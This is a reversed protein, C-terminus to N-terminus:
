GLATRLRVLLAEGDPVGLGTCPDWGPGADYAGNSGSTVDRFGAAVEGASLGAYILPQLLGPRQGLAEALRCTLASWLPSVASTGGFVADTGDVRVQYGTSPDADASVDPVGRGHRGTDADGPVRVGDQWDPVAFVASVGGGTGGQGTGHFWVTESSVEGTDPDARLTTGGCALAHPSSAPFDVHAQGDPANDTSGDDGAAACVTVGLAAADALAEDMATRAQATWEDENQGWSISVATPTPDAHVATSLADLFGRDTNPAFYVVLDAGPALAGAVEIDLLVEGDAGNPDGEPANAAGDVGVATVTPPDALGITTWYADLDAQTYGGGLELIALRQGRGDTGSPFRYVRGLELPTFTTDVAAAPRFLARAQPRDDLGLVATVVGALPAPVALDGSRQRHPVLRDAVPDPSEVRSLSVGFVRSFTAVDGAVQVRRSPLDVATIRLGEATLAATVTEADAPDAGHTEAFEARGMPAPRGTGAPLATRRRLVLTVELPAADDLPGAAQAAAVPRRASGPLTPRDAATTPSSDDAM